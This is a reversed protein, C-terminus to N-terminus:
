KEYKKYFVLLMLLTVLSITGGFIYSKPVFYYEVIHEGQAVFVSRFAINSRYIKASKGDIVAEWGPYYVESSSLFTNCVTQVRLKIKNPTYSLVEVNGPVNQCNVERDGREKGRDTQLLLVVKSLDIDGTLLAKELVQESLYYQVSSVLFFRQLARTNEYLRYQENELLLHFRKNPEGQLVLDRKTDALLYKVNLFNIYPSYPDLPPIEVNYYPISSQKTKNAIDIFHYYTDLIIPNYGSTTQIQYYSSSEFDMDKRVRSVVSYDPLLRVIEKEKKLVDILKTDFSKTPIDTLRIFQADFTLLEFTVFLLLLFSLKKPIHLQSIIRGTMVALLFVVIMLHQAPFRFLRYPPLLTFFLHHLFFNKGLSLLLFFVVSFLYFFFLSDGSKKKLILFIQKGLYFLILLVPLIGVFYILEFYNPGSGTYSYHEPFPNGFFFPAIFLKLTDLTSSGWTVLDYPLGQSRISQNVLEITPLIQIASIGYAAVIIGTFFICQQIIQQSKKMVINEITKYILFLGLLEFTLLVVFQYGALIQLTLGIIAVLIDKKKKSAIANTVSGFVLPIWVLTAIIDIHGAYIRAAFLGSCAFLISCILSPFTDQTKRLFWYTFSFALFIHIFLFLFFAINIPLFFFLINFPYFPSISPHALFPMGSFTYPNWFPIIGTKISESFYTKWFFFQELLDGGFIIKDM